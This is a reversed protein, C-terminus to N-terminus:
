AELRARRGEHPLSSRNELHKKSVQLKVSEEFIMPTTIPSQLYTQVQAPLRDTTSELAVEEIPWVPKVPLFASVEQLVENGGGSERGVTCM